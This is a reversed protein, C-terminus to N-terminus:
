HISKRPICQYANTQPNWINLYICADETDKRKIEQESEVKWPRRVKAKSREPAWNKAHLLSFSSLVSCLFDGDGDGDGAAASIKQICWHRLVSHYPIPWASAM